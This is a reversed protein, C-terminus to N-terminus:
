PTFAYLRDVAGIYLRGAAALITTTYHLGAMHAAPGGGAFVVQGTAAAFGHLRDDGDAGIVWVIRDHAGDTTTTIPSGAGNLPACWARAIAPPAATIRLVTLGGETQGPCDLGRRGFAVYAAAGDNWTAPSTRIQDASVVAAALPHGIGGLRTRDLLYAYGDKGLQLLLRRGGVDLPAPSSGGIDLDQDDLAKWTAPAFSDQVRGLAGPDLRLVAEGGAWTTADFGNGTAAFLAGDALAQGGFAWIGGGEGATRFADVVRAAATDLAVVWGHYPRCDGSRGGFPILLRGGALMLAGRQGQHRTDFPLGLAALGATVDVPWGPRVQGTDLAIAYARAVPGAKTEIQALAFVTGAAEDIVPAGTIGLPVINGCPLETDPVPAGLVADWVATGRAPDLATVHNRETAVIVLGDPHAASRWFVPQALVNGAVRGDFGADRHLRAARAADLGPVVYQGSRATDNHFTTVIPAAAALLLLALRRM